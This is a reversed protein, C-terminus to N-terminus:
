KKRVVKVEDVDPLSEGDVARDISELTFTDDDVRTIVRTAKGKRGDPLLHTSQVTWRNGDPDLVAPGGCSGRLPRDSFIVGVAMALMIVGFAGAVLLLTEM